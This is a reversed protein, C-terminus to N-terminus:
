RAGGQMKRVVNTFEARALRLRSYATNLPIGLAEAIEPVPCGDIDCMVLVARKDLDLAGLARHVLDRAQNAALADDPTPKSDVAEIDDTAVERHHRALRRYDSAARFAIGFLWPRLARAPDYTTIRRHVALFVEHALDELDSEPVGLRRLSNTVYSYENRFIAIFPPASVAAAAAPRPASQVASAESM